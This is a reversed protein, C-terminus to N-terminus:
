PLACYDCCFQSDTSECAGPTINAHSCPAECCVGECWGSGTGGTTTAAGGVRSTVFFTITYAFIIVILGIAAGTIIKKAKTIKEENGAATMWMIGAAVTLILFITGTLALATQIITAISTEVDSELGVSGVSEKLLGGGLADASAAVPILILAALLIAIFKKM